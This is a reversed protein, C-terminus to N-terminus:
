VKAADLKIANCANKLTVNGQRYKCYRPRCPEKKILLVNYFFNDEM